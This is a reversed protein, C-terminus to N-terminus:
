NNSHQEYKEKLQKAVNQTVGGMIDLYDLDPWIFVGHVGNNLMPIKQKLEYQNIFKIFNANSKTKVQVYDKSQIGTLPLISSLRSYTSGCGCSAFLLGNAEIRGDEETFPETPWNM